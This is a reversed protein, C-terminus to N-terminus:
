IGITPRQGLQVLKEKDVNLAILGQRFTICFAFIMGCGERTPELYKISIALYDLLVSFKACAVKM